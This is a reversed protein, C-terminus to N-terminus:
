PAVFRITFPRGAIASGLAPTFRMPSCRDVAALLSARAAAQTGGTAAKAYTIRPAGIVLGDRGFALRLTGEAGRGPPRWCAYLRAGVQRPRTLRADDDRGEADRFTMTFSRPISSSGQPERRPLTERRGQPLLREPSPRIQGDPYPQGVPASRQPVPEPRAPPPYIGDSTPDSPPPPLRFPPQITDVYPAIQGAQALATTASAM